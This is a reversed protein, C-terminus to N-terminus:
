PQRKTTSVFLPFGAVKQLEVGQDTEDERFKDWTLYVREKSNADHKLVVIQDADFIKRASGALNAKGANPNSVGAKNMEDIVLAALNLDKVIGHVRSSIVKSRTIEDKDLDDSILGEYDIIVWELHHQAILRELDVRLAATTWFSSDSMYIDLASMAEVAQIVAAWEGEQVRGSRLAKTRVKARASVGRRVVNVGRMELEYIAGPAHKAMECAMQFALLSKGAGPDGILKVVEGRQLGGTIRDYDLIGTPIGFYEQPHKAAEDIEEYLASAFHSIHVAGESVLVSRSLRDIADPIVQGLDTKEDVAQNALEQAARFVQRRRAKERITQAYSRAHLSTPVESLCSTLYAPGGAAHLQGREDLRNEVTRYDLDMGRARLEHFADWIWGNREVYFEEPLLDIDRLIEPDLLAAGILMRETEPSAPFKLPPTDTM